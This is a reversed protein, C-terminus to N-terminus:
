CCVWFWLFLMLLVEFYKDGDNGNNISEDDSSVIM